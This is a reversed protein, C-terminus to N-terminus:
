TAVCVCKKLLTFKLYKKSKQPKAKVSVQALILSLIGHFITFNTIVFIMDRMSECTAIARAIYM